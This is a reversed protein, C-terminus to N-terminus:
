QPRSVEAFFVSAVDLARSLSEPLDDGEDRYEHTVGDRVVTLESVVPGGDSDHDEHPDYCGEEADLVETAVLDSILRQVREPGVVVTKPDRSASSRVVVHGDAYADFARLDEHWSDGSSFRVIEGEPLPEFRCGPEGPDESPGTSCAAMTLAALIALLRKM